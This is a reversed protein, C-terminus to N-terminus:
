QVILKQLTGDVSVFYIGPSLEKIDLFLNETFIKNKLLKGSFDQLCFQHVENDYVNIRVENNAPNPYMSWFHNQADSKMGSTSNRVLKVLYVSEMTVNNITINMNPGGNQNTTSATFMQSGQLTFTTIEINDSSLWPLNMLQIDYQNYNAGLNSVLVYITDGSVSKGATVMMNTTDDYMFDVVENGTSQLKIPTEDTLYNMCKYAYANWMLNPNSGIDDYCFGGFGAGTYWFIKAIDAEQASLLLSTLYACGKPSNQYNLMNPLDINTESIIIETNNLSNIDLFYRISDALNKIHWPNKKEYTHFSYFDLATGTSSCFSFFDNVYDPKIPFFANKATAPGGVMLTSDFSKISDSVAKYMRYYADVSDIDWLLAHNPENWVEWYRIDYFQGSDWGNNYHMVTAKCLGAFKTFNIGDLDKPMPTVPTNSGALPFSIGLRYFPQSNANVIKELQTDTNFWSYDGTFMPNFSYNFTGSTADFFNSYDFYDCPGKYDHTRIMDVGIDQFCEKATLSDTNPGANVSTLEKFTGTSVAFDVTITKIQGFTCTTILFLMTTIIPKM